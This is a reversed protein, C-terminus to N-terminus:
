GWLSAPYEGRAVLGRIGEVVVPKDATYTVGLWHDPTKLVQVRAADRRILDDVVAPLYCEAKPQGASTKLFNKLANELHPFITPNFGWLNMSVTEDGTLPRWAGDDAQSRQGDARQEIKPHEVVSKLEGTENLRCIGRAVSGHESLTNRLTFGTMAYRAADPPLGRLCQALLAYSHRGYFDDANIVAFPTHMANRCAWVAHATGWPKQREAPAALGSPLDDLEQFVLEVPLAREFRSSVAARFEQEISKRIVCVVHNFGTRRADFVSYDMVIEGSPGVPDIQKLGGYRSGMGAALVVLTLEM